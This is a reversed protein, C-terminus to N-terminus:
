GAAHILRLTHEFSSPAVLDRGKWTRYPQRIDTTFYRHCLLQRLWFLSEGHKLQYARDLTQAVEIIDQDPKDSFIGSFLDFYHNFSTQDLGDEAIGLWHINQLATKSIEKETVLQWLIGKEEWYRRELEMTELRSQKDFDSTFKVQIAIQDHESQGDFDLLFDSTLVQPAGKWVRHPLGAKEAIRVTDEPNLPFQERIDVVGNACDLSLFVALELDSLMHHLRGTKRGLVRHSRGVSSIEHTRIFPRYDAGSGAGRGEKFRKRIQDESLGKSSVPM